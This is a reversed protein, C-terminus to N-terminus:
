SKADSAGTDSEGNLGRMQKLKLGKKALKRARKMYLLEEETYLWPQKFLEGQDTSDHGEDAYYVEYYKIIGHTIMNGQSVWDNPASMSARIQTNLRDM